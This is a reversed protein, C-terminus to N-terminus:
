RRGRLLAPAAGALVTAAIVASSGSGVHWFEYDTRSPLMALIRADNIAVVAACAVALGTIARVDIAQGAIRSASVWVLLALSLGHFSSCGDLVYVYWGGADLRAGSVQLTPYVVKGVWAVVPLEVGVLVGGVFRFLVPALLGHWAVALWLWALPGWAARRQRSLMTLAALALGLLSLRGDPALWTVACLALIARSRRDLGRSPPLCAVSAPLALVM